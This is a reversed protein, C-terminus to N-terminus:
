VIKQIKFQFSLFLSLKHCQISMNLFLLIQMYATSNTCSFRTSNVNLIACLINHNM